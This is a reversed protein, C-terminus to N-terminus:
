TDASGALHAGIVENVGHFRAFRDLAVQLSKALKQTRKINPELYLGEVVLVDRKRDLRPDIRGIMQDGALIPMTYYGYQRKVAPTYVEWKYDFSFLDVVRSRRWLLNDLPPLFQISHGPVSVSKRSFQLPASM